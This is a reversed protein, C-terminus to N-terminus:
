GVAVFSGLEVVNGATKRVLLDRAGIEEAPYFGEVGGVLEITIRLL